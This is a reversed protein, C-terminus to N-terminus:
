DLKYVIGIEKLKKCCTEVDDTQIWSMEEQSITVLWPEYHEKYFILDELLHPKLWEYLRSTHAELVSLAHESTKFRYINAFGDELKTGPWSQEVDIDVIESKLAKLFNEGQESLTFSHRDVLIFAECQEFAYSLLSKYVEGRPEEIIKIM